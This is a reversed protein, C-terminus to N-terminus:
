QGLQRAINAWYSKRQPSLAAGLLRFLDTEEEVKYHQYLGHRYNRSITEWEDRLFNAAKIDIEAVRKVLYSPWRGKDGPDKLGVKYPSEVYNGYEIRETKWEVFNEKEELNKENPTNNVKVAVFRGVERLIGVRFWPLPDPKIRYEREQVDVWEGNVKAQLQKNTLLAEVIIRAHPNKSHGSVYEIAVDDASKSM